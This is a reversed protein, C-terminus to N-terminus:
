LSSAPPQHQIQVPMILTTCQASGQSSFVVPTTASEGGLRVSTAGCASHAAVADDVYGLLASFKLDSVTDSVAVTESGSGYVSQASIRMTTGSVEFTVAEDGAVASLTALAERLEAIRLTAVEAIDTNLVSSVNPYQVLSARLVLQVDGGSFRVLRGKSDVALKRCGRKGALMVGSTPLLLSMDAVAFPFSVGSLRYGDTAAVTAVNNVVSLSVVNLRSEAATRVASVYGALVKADIDVDHGDVAEITTRQGEAHCLVYSHQASRVTLDGDANVELAVNGSFRGLLKALPAGPVLVSGEVADSCASRTIVELGDASGSIYVLGGSTKIEVASAGSRVVSDVFLLNDAFESVAVVCRM